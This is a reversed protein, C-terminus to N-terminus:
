RYNRGGVVRVVVRCGFLFLSELHNLSHLYDLELQPTLFSPSASADHEVNKKKSEEGRRDEEGQDKEQVDDVSM